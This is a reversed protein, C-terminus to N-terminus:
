DCACPNGYITAYDGRGNLYAEDARGMIFAEYGRGYIICGPAIVITPFFQEVPSGFFWQAYRRHPPQVHQTEWGFNVWPQFFAFGSSGRAGAGREFRPRPPQFPQLDWGWIGVSRPPIFPADM